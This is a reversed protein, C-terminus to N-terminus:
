YKSNGLFVSTCEEFSIALTDLQTHRLLMFIVKLLKFNM